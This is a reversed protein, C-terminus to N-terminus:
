GYKKEMFKLDFSRIEQKRDKDFILIMSGIQGTKGTVYEGKTNWGKFKVRGKTFLITAHKLILEHFTPLDTSSPILVICVNGKLYEKYAKFLFEVKDKNNYPPNIFNVPKWDIKLGDWRNKDHKLPCPDFFEGYEDKVWNLIYDPTAWDDNKSGNAESRKKSM